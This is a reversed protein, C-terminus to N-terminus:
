RADATLREGAAVPRVVVVQTAIEVPRAPASSRGLVTLGAIALLVALGLSAIARRRHRSVPPDGAHLSPLDVRGAAGPVMRVPSRRGGAGATRGALGGPDGSGRAARDGVAGRACVGARSGHIG